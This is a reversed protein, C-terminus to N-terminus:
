KIYQAVVTGPRLLSKIQSYPIFLDTTGAAYPKIEDQNYLFKIGLPTISYNANLAFKSDKFFYDNALTATQSLKENRRFIAEAIKELKDPYGPVFIDALTINKNAKTDWNIFYTFQSPHPGGQFAYGDVQCTTLSSDQRLIKVNANLAFFLPSKPDDQVFSSYDALFSKALQNLSSGPRSGFTFSSLLKHLVNENLADRGKFVPYRFKVITCDSDPKSGCDAARQKFVKYTYALTDRTVAHEKKPVGWKCASLACVIGFLSWYKISM